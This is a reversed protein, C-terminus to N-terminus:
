HWVRNKKVVFLGVFLVIAFLLMLSLNSLSDVATIGFVEFQVSGDYYLPYDIPLPPFNAFPPILVYVDLNYTGENLGNLVTITNPFPPSPCILGPPVIYSAFVKINQGDIEVISEKLHLCLNNYVIIEDGVIPHQNSIFVASQASISIFCSVILILGQLIKNKYFM